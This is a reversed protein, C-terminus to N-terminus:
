LIEPKQTIKLFFVFFSFTKQCKYTHCHLKKRTHVFVDAHMIDVCPQRTWSTTRIANRTRLLAPQLRKGPDQRTYEVRSANQELRNNNMFLTNEGDGCIELFKFLRGGTPESRSVQHALRVSQCLLADSCGNMMKHASYVNPM